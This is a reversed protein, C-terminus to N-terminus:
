GTCLGIMNAVFCQLLKPSCQVKWSYAKLEKIDPGLFPFNVNLTDLWATYYVSKVTYQGSKTFHWGLSDKKSSVSLHFASILPVDAPDFLEKLLDINWFNKRNDILSQVKLSPDM